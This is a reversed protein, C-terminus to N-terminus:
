GLREKGVCVAVGVTRGDHGDGTEGVNGHGVNGQGALGDRGSGGPDQSEGVKARLDLCFVEVLGKLWPRFVLSAVLDLPDVIHSREGHEIISGDTLRDSACTVPVQSVYQM